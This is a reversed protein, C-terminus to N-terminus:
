KGQAFKAFQKVDEQFGVIFNRLIGDTTGIECDLNAELASYEQGKANYSVARIFKKELNWRNIDELPIKKFHADIMLDKGGFNVLRLKFNNAEFDYYSGADNKLENKDYTISLSKLIAELKQSSVPSFIQDDTTTDGAFKTFLRLEEDFSTFFQKLAGDTVGGILDINSELTTFDGKADRNSCARSFKAKVNWENIKELTMKPFVADLMFDKGDYHYLRINFSKRQFDYFVTGPTKTDVKKFEIGQKKLLEETQEPTLRTFVKPEQAQALAAAAFLVLTAITLKM